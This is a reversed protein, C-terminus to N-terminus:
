GSGVATANFYHLTLAWISLKLQAVFFRSLNKLIQLFYGVKEWFLGFYSVSDIEINKGTSITKIQLMHIINLVRLGSVHVKHLDM